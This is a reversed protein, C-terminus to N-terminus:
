DQLVQLKGLMSQQAKASIPLWSPHALVFILILAIAAAILTKFKRM